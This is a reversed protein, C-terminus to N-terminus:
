IETQKQMRSTYVFNRKRPNLMQSIDRMHIECAFEMQM